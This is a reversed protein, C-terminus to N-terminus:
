TIIAEVLKSIFAIVERVDTQNPQGPQFFQLAKALGPM